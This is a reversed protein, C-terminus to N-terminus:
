NVACAAPEVCGEYCNSTYSLVYQSGCVPQVIKCTVAPPSCIARGDACRSFGLCCGPAVCDCVGLDAFVSHCDPRADCTDKTTMASCAIPCAVAPCILAGGSAAPVCGTFTTGGNCNPCRNARCDSRATCSAEDTLSSCPSPCPIALGVCGPPTDRVPDYCGAFQPTGGCVATCRGVACDSRLQCFAEELGKCGIGVDSGSDNGGGGDPSQLISGCAPAALALALTFLLASRESRM